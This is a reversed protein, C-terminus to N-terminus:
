RSMKSELKDQAAGLGQEAAKRFWDVAQADNKSVGRGNAYMVGLNYQAAANGGDAAKRYWSVAEGYNRNKEHARGLQYQFRTINPYGSLADVCAPIAKEPDIKDFPLGAGKRKPDLDSAAFVDCDTLFPDGMQSSNPTSAIVPPAISVPPTPAPVIKPLATTQTPGTTPTPAAASNEGGVLPSLSNGVGFSRYKDIANIQKQKICATDSGCSKRAQLLPAGIQRAAQDGYSRRVYEFGAAVENDLRSLESSSCIAIEDATSIRTCDFSPSIRSKTEVAREVLNLPEVLEFTLVEPAAGIHRCNRDILPKQGRLEVRSYDNLVPGSVSYSIQGCRRDFVYAKGIYKENNKENIFKGEFLLSGSKAGADIMEPRPETFYFKRSAGQVVLKIKSGNQNWYMQSPSQGGIQSDNQAFTPASVGGFLLSLCVILATKRLV